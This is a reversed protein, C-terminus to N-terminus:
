KNKASLLTLINCIKPQLSLINEAYMSITEGSSINDDFILVNKGTIMEIIENKRKKTVKNTIHDAFDLYRILFRYKPPIMKMEFSGYDKEIMKVFYSYLRKSLELGEKDGYDKCLKGYDLTELLDEADPKIFKDKILDIHLINDILYNALINNLEHKSPIVVMTDYFNDLKKSIKLFRDIMFNMQKEKDIFNWGKIEKLAYILPNGDINEGYENYYDKRRFISFVNYSKNDVEIRYNKPNFDLSTDVADEHDDTFMVTKRKQDIILGEFLPKM